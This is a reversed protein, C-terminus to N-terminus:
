LATNLPSERRCYRRLADDDEDRPWRLACHNWVCDFRSSQNLSVSPVM